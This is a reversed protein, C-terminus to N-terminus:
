GLGQMCFLSWVRVRSSLVTDAEPITAEAVSFDADDPISYLPAKPQMLKLFMNCATMAANKNAFRGYRRGAIKVAWKNRARDFVVGRPANEHVEAYWAVCTVLRCDNHQKM